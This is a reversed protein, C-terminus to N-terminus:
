LGSVDDPDPAALCQSLIDAADLRGYMLTYDLGESYTILLIASNNLGKWVNSIIGEETEVTEAEGYIKTLKEKLITYECGILGVNVAILKYEGDYAFTFILDKVSYGAIKGKVSGELATTFTVEDAGYIRDPSFFGVENELLYSVNEHNLDVKTGNRLFGAEILSRAVTEDDSLWPVGQFTIESDYEAMAASFLLMVVILVGM